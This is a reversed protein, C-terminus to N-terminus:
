TNRGYPDVMSLLKMPVPVVLEGFGNDCYLNNGSYFKQLMQPLIYYIQGMIVFALTIPPPEMLATEVFRVPIFFAESDFDKTYNVKEKWKEDFGNFHLLYYIIDRDVVIYGGVDDHYYESHYYLQREPDGFKNSRQFTDLAEYVNLMAM